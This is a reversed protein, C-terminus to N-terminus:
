ENPRGADEIADGIEVTRDGIRRCACHSSLERVVRGRASVTVFQMRVTQSIYGHPHGNIKIQQPRRAWFCPFSLQYTTKFETVIARRPSPANGYAGARKAGDRFEVALM